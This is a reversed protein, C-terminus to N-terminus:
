NASKKMKVKDKYMAMDAYHVLKDFGDGNEPYTAIGISAYVRYSNQEIIIPQSILEKLKEALIHYTTKNEVDTILVIFEDGGIRSVMDTERVCSQMRTAITQLVSDGITHGYKDNISKFENLDIFLLGLGKNNRKASALSFHFSDQLLTRNPLETLVDHESIYKLQKKQEYERTIDTFMGIYNEIEDFSNRLVKITLNQLYLEGNKRRNYIKGAWSDDTNLTGWLRQFFIKDHHGSSLISPTKDILENIQYGTISTFAENVRIFRNKKDMIMIAQPSLECVQNGLIRQAEKEKRESIDIISAMYCENSSQGVRQIHVEVPYPPQDKYQSISEYNISSRENKSLTKLQHWLNKETIFAQLDHPSLKLAESASIDLKDLVVSNVFEFHKGEEGFIYIETQSNNIAQYLTNKENSIYATIMSVLSMVSFYFWFLSLNTQNNEDLFIGQQITLGYVGIVFYIVVILAPIIQSFRIVAWFLPIILLYRGRFEAFFELFKINLDLLVFFGILLSILLLCIFEFFKQYLSYILQSYSFSLLFPAILLVGIVDSMWWYLFVRSFDPTTIFGALQLALVGHCSSVLAGVSGALILSRYDHIHYINKSFPLFRLLYVALLPELTNGLAIIASIYHPNSVSVSAAFAGAFVGIAYKSGFRILCALAIGSSPWILTVNGAITAFHLATQAVLFYTIAISIQKILTQIFGIKTIM